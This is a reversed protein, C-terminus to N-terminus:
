RPRLRLQAVEAEDLVFVAVLVLGIEPIQALNAGPKTLLSWPQVRLASDESGFHIWNM